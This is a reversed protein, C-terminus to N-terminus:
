KSEELVALAFHKPKNVKLWRIAFIKSMVRLVGLLGEPYNNTPENWRFEMAKQSPDAAMLDVAAKAEERGMGHEFLFAEIDDRITKMIEEKTQM